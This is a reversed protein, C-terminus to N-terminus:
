LSAHLHLTHHSRGRYKQGSRSILLTVTTRAQCHSKLTSTIVYRPRLWRRRIRVRQVFVNEGGKIKPFGRSM